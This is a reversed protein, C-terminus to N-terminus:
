LAKIVAIVCGSHVLAKERTMGCFGSLPLVPPSAASALGATLAWLHRPSPLLRHQNEAPGQLAAAIVHLMSTVRLEKYSCLGHKGREWQSGKRWVVEATRGGRERLGKLNSKVISHFGRKQKCMEADTEGRQRYIGSM